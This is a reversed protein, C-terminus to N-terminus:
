IISTGAIMMETVALECDGDHMEVGRIGDFVVTTQYGLQCADMATFKVCYDTALGVITVADVGHKRLLADLETAQRRENDFFGSYSDIEPNTGKHVIHDISDLKLGPVFEAGPTGQVCHRPWLVQQTGSLDIVDGVDHGRHQDAFSGHDEPHWDQTALVLDFKPMLKNAVAVVEDGGPVGLAGGPVFDNQIDVLILANM